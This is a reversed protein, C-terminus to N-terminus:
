SPQHATLEHATFMGVQIPRCINLVPTWDPEDDDDDGCKISIVCFTYSFCMYMPHCSTVSDTTVISRWKTPIVQCIHPTLSHRNVM